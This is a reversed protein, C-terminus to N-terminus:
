CKMNPQCANNAKDEELEKLGGGNHIKQYGQEKLYAEAQGARHGSRCYLVAQRTKDIKEFASPLTNLPINIAMPLHGQQFEEPTRVDIVQAGKDIMEWAVDARTTAFVSFSILVTLFAGALQKVWISKKM